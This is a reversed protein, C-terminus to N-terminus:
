VQGRQIRDLLKGLLYDSSLFSYVNQNVICAYNHTRLPLGFIAKFHLKARVFNKKKPKTTIIKKKQTYFASKKIDFCSMWNKHISVCNMKKDCRIKFYEWNFMETGMESEDYSHDRATM